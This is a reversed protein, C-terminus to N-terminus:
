TVTIAATAYVAGNLISYATITVSGASVGEVSGTQSVIAKTPDSSVWVVGSYATSPTPTISLQVEGSSHSISATAPAIAIATPAALLSGITISCNGGGTNVSNVNLGEALMLQYQGATITGSNLADNLSCLWSESLKCSCCDDSVSAVFAFAWTSDISWLDGHKNTNFFYNLQGAVPLNALMAAQSETPITSNNAM